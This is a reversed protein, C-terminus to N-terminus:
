KVREIVKIQEKNFQGVLKEKDQQFHNTSYAEKKHQSKKKVIENNLIQNKKCFSFVNNYKNCYM